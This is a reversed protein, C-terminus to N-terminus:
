YEQSKWLVLRGQTDRLFLSDGSYTWVYTQNKWYLEKKTDKGEGVILSFSELNKLTFNGFAYKKRGEDKITWKNFSCNFNCKNYFVIIQNDFDWLKLEICSSCIDLSRECLNKNKNLCEIWANAFENYYRDKGSPFYTNAYGERVLEENINKEGQFLYALERDYIDKGKNEATLSKNLVNTELYKKAESYLYEGKEPTNIGLMRYHINNTDVVTDGDIVRGVTITAENGFNKILFSDFTSYNIGIFTIILIILLLLERSRKM